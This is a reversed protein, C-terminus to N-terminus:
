RAVTVTSRSADSAITFDLKETSTVAFSESKYWGPTDLSTAELAIPEGTDMFSPPISFTANGMSGVLGLPVMHDNQFVYVQYRSSSHNQVAVSATEGPAQAEQGIGQAPTALAVPMGLVAALLVIKLANM